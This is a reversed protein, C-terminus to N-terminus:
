IDDDESTAYARPVKKIVITLGFLVLVAAAAMGLYIGAGAGTPLQPQVPTNGVIAEAQSRAWATERV